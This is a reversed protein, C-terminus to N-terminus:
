SSPPPNQEEREEAEAQEFTDIAMVVRTVAADIAELHALVSPLTLENLADPRQLRQQLLQAHGRIIALPNKVEHSLHDNQDSDPSAGEPPFRSM